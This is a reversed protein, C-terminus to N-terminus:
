AYTEKGQKATEVEELISEGESAPLPSFWIWQLTVLQGISKWDWEEM